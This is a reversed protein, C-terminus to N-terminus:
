SAARNSAFTSTACPRARRTTKACASSRGWGTGCKSPRRRTPPRSHCAARGGREGRAPVPQLLQGVRRASRGTRAVESLTDYQWECGEHTPRCVGCRRRRQGARERSDDAASCNAPTADAVAADLRARNRTTSPSPPLASPHQADVASWKPSARVCISHSEVSNCAPPTPMAVVCSPSFRARTEEPLDPQSALDNRMHLPSRFPTLTTFAPALSAPM